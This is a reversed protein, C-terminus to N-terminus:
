EQVATKGIYRGVEDYNLVYTSQTLDRGTMTYSELRNGSYVLTMDYGDLENNIRVVNGENDYSLSLEANGGDPLTYKMKVLRDVGNTKEYLFDISNHITVDLTRTIDFSIIKNNAYNIKVRLGDEDYSILRGNISAATFMYNGGVEGAGILLGASDFYYETNMSPIIAKHSGDKEHEVNISIDGYIIQAIRNKDTYNLFLQDGASFYDRFDVQATIATCNGNTYELTAFTTGGYVVASVENDASYELDFYTLVSDFVPLGQIQRPFMGIRSYEDYDLLTIYKVKEDECIYSAGAIPDGYAYVYSNIGNASFLYECRTIPIYETMYYATEVPSLPGWISVAYLSSDGTAEYGQKLTTSAKYLNWEEVYAKALHLYNEAVCPRIDIAANLYDIVAEYDKCALADDASEVSTFYSLEKRIEESKTKQYGKNLIEQAKEANNQKFYIDALRLYPAVEKPKIAVADEYAKIAEPWEQAEIHGSGAAM